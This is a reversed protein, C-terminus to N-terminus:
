KSLLKRYREGDKLLKVAEAYQKDVRLSNEIAGREYYYATMIDTTLMEKLKQKNYPYDLDKSINHKLKKSLAAFEEKADDYYGEFRALKELDKLYKESVQDYTFGSKIVYDKFQEYDADSLVFESPAAVTPHKAIFDMEYNLLVDTTDMRSLYYAINPLSDPQVEVDPKIGGGDRM